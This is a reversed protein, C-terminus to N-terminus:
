LLPSLRFPIEILVEVAIARGSKEAPEFRWRAFAEAAAQDLRADVGRVVAVDEVGGDTRIVAYLTIVGEVRERRADAPYRPDVKKVVVPAAVGGNDGNGGTGQYRRDTTVLAGTATEREAFRLLWSSSQSTLNPMNIYTTYIRRPAAGRRLGPGLSGLLERSREQPEGSEPSREPEAQPQSQAVVPAKPQPPEPPPAPGVIAPSSVPIGSGGSISVGPLRMGALEGAEGHAETGAGSAPGVAFRARLRAQPIELAPAPRAPEASLAVLGGPVGAPKAIEGPVGPAGLEPADATQGARTSATLRPLLNELKTEALVIEGPSAPRAAPALTPAAPLNTTPKLEPEPAPPIVVNPLRVLRPRVSEARFDALLTQTPHNPESPNSVITQPNFAEVKPPEPKPAKKAQTSAISPLTLPTTWELDYEITITGPLAKPPATLFHPLPAVIFLVHLLASLVFARGSLAAAWELGRFWGTTSDKPLNARAVLARLSAGLAKRRSEWEVALGAGEGQM